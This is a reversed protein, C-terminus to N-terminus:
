AKDICRQLLNMVDEKSTSYCDNYSSLATYKYNPLVGVESNLNDLLFYKTDLFLTIGKTEVLKLCGTLCAAKIRLPNETAEEFFIGKGKSDRFFSNQCWDFNNQFMWQAAILVEKVSKAKM